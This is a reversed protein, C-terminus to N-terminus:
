LCSVTHPEIGINLDMTFYSTYSCYADSLMTFHSPEQVSLRFCEFVCYFSSTYGDYFVIFCSLLGGIVDYFVISEYFADFFAGFHCRTPCGLDLFM